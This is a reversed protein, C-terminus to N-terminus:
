CCSWCCRLSASCRRGANSTPVSTLLLIPVLLVAWLLLTATSRASGSQRTPPREAM